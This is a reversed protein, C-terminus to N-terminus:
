VCSKSKLLEYFLQTTGIEYGAYGWYYWMRSLDDHLTLKLKVSKGCLLLVNCSVPALPATDKAFFNYLRQKNKLSLPLRQVAFRVLTRVMPRIGPIIYTSRAIYRLLNHREM